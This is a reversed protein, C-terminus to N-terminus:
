RRHPLGHAVTPLEHPRVVAAARYQFMQQEMNKWKPNKDWGEAKVMRRTIKVIGLKTGEKDTTWATCGYEDGEGEFRFKLTLGFPWEHEHPRHRIARVLGPARSGCRPETGRHIPPHGHAQVPVFHGLACPLKGPQEPLRDPLMTSKSLASAMRSALEFGAATAFMDAAGVAAVQVGTETAEPHLLQRATRNSEPKLGCCFIFATCLVYSVRGSNLFVSCDTQCIKMDPRRRKMPSYQWSQCGDTTPWAQRRQDALFSVARM